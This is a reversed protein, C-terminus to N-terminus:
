LPRELLYTNHVSTTQRSAPLAHDGHAQQMAALVVAAPQVKLDGIELLRGIVDPMVVAFATELFDAILNTDGYGGVVDETEASAKEVKVVIAPKIQKNGVAVDIRLDLLRRLFGGVFLDIRQKMVVAFSLEDLHRLRGAVSKLGGVHAAASSEGVEVVVAVHIDDDGVVAIRRQQQVIAAAGAIM